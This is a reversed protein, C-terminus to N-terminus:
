MMICLFVKCGCSFKLVFFLVLSDLVIYRIVLMNINVYIGNWINIMMIWLYVIYLLFMGIDIINKILSRCNLLEIMLKKM